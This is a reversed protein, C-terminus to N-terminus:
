RKNWEKEQRVLQEPAYEPYAMIEEVTREMRMSQSGKVLICDGEEVMTKLEAGAIRADEYQLIASDSLGADLAGQAIDHARFGITVLLDACTAAYTGIKRHEGVSYRGLELMDGLVAIMKGGLMGKKLMALTDLAAIVAAPSSNYTDDIVVTDKLGHLLHMRGKPPVYSHLAEVMPPLAKGLARGVGVAAIVSLFLHLGVTGMLSIAEPTEEEVHLFAKIGIPMKEKDNFLLSFNGAWVDMEPSLGFTVVRVGRDEARSRLSLTREDDGYLVLTGGPRIANILSAKEEVVAEPSSFFEVHVPIEPLRTIVAVDVTLWSVLSSIDGPRDAGVELVVWKPYDITFLILLLGDLINQLWVFPNHWANPRGLITLPIGLESNFSKESKRVSTDVALMHAIADKTSTKGVSGTVAIIHPKYKRLVLRAEVTLLFVIIRKFM